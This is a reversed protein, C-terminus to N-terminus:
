TSALQLLADDSDSKSRRRLAPPSELLIQIELLEKLRELNGRLEKVTARYDELLDSPNATDTVGASMSRRECSCTRGDIRHKGTEKHTERQGEPRMM